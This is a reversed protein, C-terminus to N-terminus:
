NSRDRGNTKGENRKWNTLALAALFVDRDSYDGHQRFKYTADASLYVAFRTLLGDDCMKYGATQIPHWSAETGTKIDLVGYAGGHANRYEITRDLTGAFRYTSEYARKEIAMIDCNTEAKFRRWAALYGKYEDAVQSEELEGRDELATIIHVTRGRLQSEETYWRDDILGAESLIQTVSPVVAGDIRYTHTAHEFTLIHPLQPIPAQVEMAAESEAESVRESKAM